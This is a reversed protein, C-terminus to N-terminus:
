VSYITPLTLHTYSVPSNDACTQLGCTFTTDDCQEGIPCWGCSGGCGDDGCGKNDCDPTCVDCAGCSNKSVVPLMIPETGEISLVRNTYGGSTEVCDLNPALDEWTGSQANLFTNSTVFKYAYEGEPAM